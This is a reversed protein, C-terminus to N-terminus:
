YFIMYLSEIQAVTSSGAHGKVTFVFICDGVVLFTIRWPTFPLSINTIYQGIINFHPVDLKLDVFSNLLFSSYISVSFARTDPGPVM